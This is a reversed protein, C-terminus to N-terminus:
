RSRARSATASSGTGATAGPGSITRAGAPRCAAPRSGRPPDLTVVGDEGTLAVLLRKNDPLMVLGAPAKGVEVNWKIAQTQSTSPSWARTQQLSVFVTKSDNDFALHSPMGDSSRAAPSRSPRATTATSTSTISGTPPPSSGSATRASASSTPSRRHRPRHAQARRDQYRARGARQDRDLRDASGQRGADHTLHHPERGLPM